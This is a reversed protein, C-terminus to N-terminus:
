APQEPEAPVEKLGSIGITFHRGCSPCVLLPGLESDKRREQVRLPAFDLTCTALDVDHRYGSM